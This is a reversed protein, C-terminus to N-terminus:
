RRHARMIREQAAYLERAKTKGVSLRGAGELVQLAADLSMQRRAARMVDRVARYVRWQERLKRRRGVGRKGEPLAEALGLAAHMTVPENLTRGIAESLAGAVWYPLPVGERAAMDVAGLLALADGRRHREQLARFELALEQLSRLNAREGPKGDLVLGVGTRVRYAWAAWAPELPELEREDANLSEFGAANNM